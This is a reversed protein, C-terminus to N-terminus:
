QQQRERYLANDARAVLGHPGDDPQLEAFGVMVSGYEPAEVLAANVLALRTTADALNLGAIACVFEDGGYRFVLDYSRLTARLTNAVELLMRDGAAHGRSDSIANLGIVVVFALVFPQQSRRARAMDRELEVFGAGRLYVGTLADVSSDERERSQDRGEAVSPGSSGGEAGGSDDRNVVGWDIGGRTATHMTAARDFWCRHDPPAKLTVGGRAHSWREAVLMPGGRRWSCPVVEDGNTRGVPPCPGRKNGFHRVVVSHGVKVQRNRRSVRRNSSSLYTVVPTTEAM